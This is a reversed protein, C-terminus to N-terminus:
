DTGRRAQESLRLTALAIVAGVLAGFPTTGLDAVVDYYASAPADNGRLFRWELLENVAEAIMTIGIASALLLWWDAIRKRLLFVFVAAMLAGGIIHHLNASWDPSM